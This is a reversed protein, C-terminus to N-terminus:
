TFLGEAREMLRELREQLGSVHVDQVTLRMRESGNRASYLWRLMLFPWRAALLRDWVALREWFTEDGAPPEYNDRLWDHQDEPAALWGAHWRYEALDLAPDGWGSYEWDVWRMQGDPGWIMNGPNPDVHCLRLPVASRSLDVRRERV